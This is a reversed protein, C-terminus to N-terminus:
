GHYVRSAIIKDDQIILLEAVRLDEEGDVHRLYEMFVQTKDATLGLMEYRLSPLRNFSDQWWDRLAEKGTILGKSDPHRLKLKPSYHQADNHYLALLNELHHTNFAGFWRLAIQKNMEASM